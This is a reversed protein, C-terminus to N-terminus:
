KGLDIDNIRVIWDNVAIKASAWVNNMLFFMMSWNSQRDLYEQNSMNWALDRTLALYKILPIDIIVKDNGEDDQVKNSTVILRASEMHQELLRSTSFEVCAVQVQNEEDVFVQAGERTDPDVYGMVRNESVYPLYRPTYTDSTVYVPRNYGDLVFNDDVIKFDYENVDISYPSALEQLIIQINNTNKMLHVTEVRKQTSWDNEDVTLRYPTIPNKRSEDIPGYFLGGTRNDLDHLRRSSEGQLDAAPLKVRVDDKHGSSAAQRHWGPVFDFEPHECAVGGYVLLEYDGEPLTLDMVYGDNKLVESTESFQTIFNGLTDLVFVNVCDVNRPFSNAGPEMHYDYVFKLGVSTYCDSTDDYILNNECSSFGLSIGAIAAAFLSLKTAKFMM